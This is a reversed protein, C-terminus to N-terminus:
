DIVKKLYSVFKKIIKESYKNNSVDEGKRAKRLGIRWSHRMNELNTIWELNNVNNNCKNGDIHNVQPLNNPNPIFAKAVLTHIRFTYRVGNHTLSIQPYGKKNKGPKLFEETIINIVDGETSIAYRTIEGNIKINTWRRM